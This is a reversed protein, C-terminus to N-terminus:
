TLKGETLFDCVDFLEPPWFRFLIYIYIYLDHDVRYMNGRHDGCALACPLLMSEIDYLFRDIGWCADRVGVVPVANGHAKESRGLLVYSCDPCNFSVIM